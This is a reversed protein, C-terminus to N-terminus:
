QQQQEQLDLLIEWEGQLLEAATAGGRQQERRRVLLDRGGEAVSANSDTPM